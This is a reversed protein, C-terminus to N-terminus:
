WSIIKWLTCLRTHRSFKWTKLHKVNYRQHRWLNKHRWKQAFNCYFKKNLMFNDKWRHIVNCTKLFNMKQQKESSGQHRWLNSKLRWYSKRVDNRLLTAISKKTWFSIRKGVTYLMVINSFFFTKACFTSVDAIVHCESTDRDFFHMRVHHHDNTGLKM